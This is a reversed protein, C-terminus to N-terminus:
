SKDKRTAEHARRWCTGCVKALSVAQPYEMTSDESALKRSGCRVSSSGPADRLHLTNKNSAWRRQEMPVDHWAPADPYSPLEPEGAIDYALKKLRTTTDDARTVGFAPREEAEPEEEVVEATIAEDAIQELHEDSPAEIHPTRANITAALVAAIETATGDLEVERVHARM